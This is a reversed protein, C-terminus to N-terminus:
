SVEIQIQKPKAAESKPLTITLLGNAYRAQVRNSDVEVPLEITRFFKGAARESRHYAEAPVDRPGTKEGSITLTNRVVTLNLAQPDIGPALAEVYVNDRDESVNVLPYARAARGPLFTATGSGPSMGPLANTLARDIERRLTEMERFPDWARMTM